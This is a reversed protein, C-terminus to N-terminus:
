FFDIAEQIKEIAGGSSRINDKSGGKLYLFNHKLSEDNLWEDVKEIVNEVAKNNTSSIVILNNTDEGKEILTLARQAVQQAILHLILTTKGSGPPGQVATIPETQAHKLATLQSNTPPHTPFAGM